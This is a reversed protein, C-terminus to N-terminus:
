DSENQAKESNETTVEYIERQKEEQTTGYEDSINKPKMLATLLLEPISAGHSTNPNAPISETLASIIDTLEDILTWISKIEDTMRDASPAIEQSIGFCGRILIIQSAILLLLCTAYFYDLM